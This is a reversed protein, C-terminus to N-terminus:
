KLGIAFSQYFCFDFKLTKTKQLYELVKFKLLLFSYQYLFAVIEPECKSNHSLHTQQYIGLLFREIFGSKKGTFKTVACKNVLIHDYWLM